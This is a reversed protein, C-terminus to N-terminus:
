HLSPAIGRMAVGPKGEVYPKAAAVEYHKKLIPKAQYCGAESAVCRADSLAGLLIPVLKVDHGRLSHYIFPLHLEMSHEAQIPACRM